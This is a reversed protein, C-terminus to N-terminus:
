GVGFACLPRSACGGSLSLLWNPFVADASRCGPFPWAVSATPLHTTELPPPRLPLSPWTPWPVGGERWRPATRDVPPQCRDCVPSRPSRLARAGALSVCTRQTSPSGCPVRRLCGDGPVSRTCPEQTCAVSHLVLVLVWGGPLTPLGEESSRREWSRFRVPRAKCGM